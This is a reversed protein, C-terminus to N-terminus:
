WGSRTSYRGTRPRQHECLGPSLLRLSPTLCGPRHHRPRGAPLPPPRAEGRYGAAARNVAKGPLYRVEHDDSWLIALLLAAEVTTLDVAWVPQSSLGAVEALLGLLSPEDNAIKRSLRVQGQSDLVVAWHHEKGVDVGVWVRDV